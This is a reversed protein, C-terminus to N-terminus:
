VHMAHSKHVILLSQCTETQLHTKLMRTYFDGAPYYTQIHNCVHGYTISYTVTSYFQM